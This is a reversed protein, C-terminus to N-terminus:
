CQEMCRLAKCRELESTFFFFSGEPPSIDAPSLYMICWAISLYLPSPFTPLIHCISYPAPVCFHNIVFNKVHILLFFAVFCVMRVGCGTLESGRRPDWWGERERVKTGRSPFSTACPPLCATFTDVRSVGRRRWTTRSPATSEWRCIPSTAPRCSWSPLFLSLRCLILPLVRHVHITILYSM